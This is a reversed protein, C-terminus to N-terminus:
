KEAKKRKAWRARAAKKAREKRQAATMNLAGWKGGEKGTKVFFDRTFEKAAM